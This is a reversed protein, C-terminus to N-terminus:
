ERWDRPTRVHSRDLQAVSECGLLRLTRDLDERLISLVRDVGPQGAAALGYAWPRGVMAARAGLALAKIVDAGRRFGGDVLVEVEGEVAAVVEILAPLSSPITDLQRGGHNSVIIADAGNDIARRADEGTVIGKALIPGPWQERLWTFDDWTPPTAIWYLLAEEPSMPQEPPGLSTANVLDLRFGDRAVDLLWWPRVAVQPAMKRMTRADLELPPSLRQRQERERNGPIQTDLTVAL